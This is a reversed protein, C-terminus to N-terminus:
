RRLVIKRTATLASIWQKFKPADLTRKFIITGPVPASGIGLKHRQLM